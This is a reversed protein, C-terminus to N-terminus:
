LKGECFHLAKEETIKFVLIVGSDNQQEPSVGGMRVSGWVAASVAFM